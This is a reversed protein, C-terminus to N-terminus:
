LQISLIMGQVAKTLYVMQGTYMKGTTGLLLREVNACSFFLRTICIITLYFIQMCFLSPLVTNRVYLDPGPGPM